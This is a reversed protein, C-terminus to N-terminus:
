RVKWGHVPGNLELLWERIVLGLVTRKKRGQLRENLEQLLPSCRCMARDELDLGIGFEHGSLKAADVLHPVGFELREVITDTSKEGAEVVPFHVPLWTLHDIPVEAMSSPALIPAELTVNAPIVSVHANTRMPILPEGCGEDGKEVEM